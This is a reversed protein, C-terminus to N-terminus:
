NKLKALAAVCAQELKRLAERRANSCPLAQLKHVARLQALVTFYSM